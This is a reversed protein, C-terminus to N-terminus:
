FNVKEDRFISPLTVILSNRIKLGGKNCWENHQM